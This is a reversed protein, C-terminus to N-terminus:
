ALRYYFVSRIERLQKIDTVKQMEAKKSVTM